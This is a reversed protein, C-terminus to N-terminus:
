DPLALAAREAPTLLRWQGPALDGLQLPGLAIRQLRTVRLGVAQCLRRIERKRGEAMSLEVLAGGPWQERVEARLARLEEGADTVGRRFQILLAPTVEGRVWVRYVKAVGYRPHALRLALAGDNTLLLLGESDRDLRGVTFLRGMSAPVLEFVLREAHADRASCTYGCPKNLLLYQRAQAQVPRGEFCVHDCRPDVTTAPSLVLAGNVTVKGSTLFQECTRRAGLGAAALFRAIRVPAPRPNPQTM